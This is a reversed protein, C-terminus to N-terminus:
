LSQFNGDKDTYYIARFPFSKLLEQCNKCPKSLGVTSNRMIRINVLTYKKVMQAVNIFHYKKCEDAVEIKLIADLESHVSKYGHTSKPHTRQNNKNTGLSVIRKGHLIFTLHLPPPMKTFEAHFDNYYSQALSVLKEQLKKNMFCFHTGALM